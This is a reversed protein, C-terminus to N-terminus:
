RNLCFSSTMIRDLEGRRALDKRVRSSEEVSLVTVADNDFYANWGALAADGWLKRVNVQCSVGLMSRSLQKYQKLKTAPKVLPFCMAWRPWYIANERVSFHRDVMGLATTMNLVM